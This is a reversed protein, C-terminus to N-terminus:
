LPLRLQNKAHEYLVAFNDFVRELFLRNRESAVITWAYDKERDLKAEDMAIHQLMHGVTEDISDTELPDIRFRYARESDDANHLIQFDKLGTKNRLM